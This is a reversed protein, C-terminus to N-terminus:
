DDNRKTKEETELDLNDFVQINSTFMICSNDARRIWPAEPKNEIHSPDLSLLIQKDFEPTIEPPEVKPFSFCPRIV